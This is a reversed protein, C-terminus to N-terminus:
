ILVYLYFAYAMICVCITLVVLNFLLQKYIAIVTTEGKALRTLYHQVLNGSVIAPLIALFALVIWGFAYHPSGFLADLFSKITDM